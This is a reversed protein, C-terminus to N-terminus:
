ALVLDLLGDLFNTSQSLDAYNNYQKVQIDLFKAFKENNAESAFVINLETKALLINKFTDNNYKSTFSSYFKNIYTEVAIPLDEVGAESNLQSVYIKIQNYSPYNNSSYANEVIEEEDDIEVKINVYVPNTSKDDEAEFKASPAATTDYAALMHYGFSTKILYKDEATTALFDKNLTGAAKLEEYLAKVGVGFESVYKSATSNNVSGLDEITLGFNYVTRLDKWYEGTSILKAQPDTVDTVYYAKLVYDLADQLNAHGNNVITHVETLIKNFLGKLETYFNARKSEPLDKLFVEPDDSNGDGNFDVTLLIHKVSLDFYNDDYLKGVKEVLEYYEHSPKTTAYKEWIKQSTMYKIVDEESMQGFYIFLFVDKGISAPLNNTTYGDQEFASIIENYNKTIAEKEEDTLVNIAENALLVESTFYDMATTVGIKSELLAYFDKVYIPTGNIKAVLSNDWKSQDLRTHESNEVSYLVDYVYDHIEVESDYVAEVLLKSIFSSTLKGDIIEDVIEKKALAKAVDDLEEYKVEGKEAQLFVLYVKNGFQQNYKYQGAELNKVLNILNTNYDSLDADTLLYNSESNDKYQYKATYIAKAEEYSIVNDALANKLAAQSEALTDFGVIVVNYTLEKNKTSNYTTEITEESIYYPNKLDKGESDKLAENNETQYKSGWYYKSTPSTLAKRAYEIQALEQLYHKLNNETYLNSQTLDKVGALYMQDIYKLENTNKTSSSMRNIEEEDDTGYCDENILKILAKQTDEDEHNLNLTTPNVLTKIMEDFLYDYGNVRLENYLAKESLTLEDLTAYVTSDSLEGYSVNKNYTDTTQEEQCSVLSIGVFLVLLVLLSKIILNKM